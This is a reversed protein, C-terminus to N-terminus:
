ATFNAQEWCRRLRMELARRQEDNRAQGHSHRCKLSFSLFFIAGHFVRWATEISLSYHCWLKSLSRAGPCNSYLSPSPSSLTCPIEISVMLIPILIMMLLSPAYCRHFMFGKSIIDNPANTSSEGTKLKVKVNRLKMVLEDSRDNANM